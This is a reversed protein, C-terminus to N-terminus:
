GLVGVRYCTFCAIGNGEASLSTLKHKIIEPETITQDSPLYWQYSKKQRKTDIFKDVKDLKDAKAGRNHVGHIYM